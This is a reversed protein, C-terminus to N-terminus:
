VRVRGVRAREWGMQGTWKSWQKARMMRSATTPLEVKMRGSSIGVGQVAFSFDGATLFMLVCCSSAHISSPSVIASPLISRTSNSRRLRVTRPFISLPSFLFLSSIGPSAAGSVLFFLFGARCPSMRAAMPAGGGVGGSDGDGAGISGVRDESIAECEVRVGKRLRTRSARQWTGRPEYVM